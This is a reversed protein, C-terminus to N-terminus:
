WSNDISVHDVMEQEADAKHPSVLVENMLHVYFARDSFVDFKFCKQTYLIGVLLCVTCNTIACEM